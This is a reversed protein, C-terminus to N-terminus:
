VRHLKAGESTRYIQIHNITAPSTSVPETTSRPLVGPPPTRGASYRSAPRLWPAPQGVAQPWRASLRLGTVVPDMAAGCSLDRSVASVRGALVGADPDREGGVTSSRVVQGLRSSGSHIRLSVKPALPTPASVLPNPRDLLRPLVTGRSANAVGYIVYRSVFYVSPRLREGPAGTPTM